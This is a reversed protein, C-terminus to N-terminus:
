QQKPRPTKFAKANHEAFAAPVMFTGTKLDYACRWGDIYPLPKDEGQADFSLSIVIYRSDPWRQGLWAYNDDLGKLLDAFLHDLSDRDKPDRNLKKSEPLGFFYDWAFQSLPKPTASSFQLGNRRYLFLTQYGAGTKQMRVLWQSNPSFRFGAPYAALDIGEGGNLLSRHQHKDDFTWFQHLFGGDGMDKSYQEVRIQRDPSTFMDDADTRLKFEPGPGEANAPAATAFRLLVLASLLFGTGRLWGGFMRTDQEINNTM